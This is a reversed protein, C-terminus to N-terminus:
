ANFRKVKGIIICFVLAILSIAGGIFVSAPSFVFEINHQGHELTVAQLIEHASEIEAPKGDIEVKWGPYSIESLVLRGPGEAVINIRNATRKIKEVPRIEQGLLPDSEMWAWGRAQDNRYIYGKDVTKELIWGSNEIPFASAMYRVNLLGMADADPKTDINDSEPNGSEFAPLTVSYGDLPLNNAKRVFDSYSKLQLPDIGDALEFGNLAASHQPISYSPSYTRYDSGKEILTEVFSSGDGMANDFSRWGTLNIDFAALDMIGIIGAVLIFAKASAKKYSYCLITAAMIAWSALHWGLMSNKEPNAAIVFGQILVVLVAVAITTLRLFIAKEPNSKLLRDLTIMAIVLVAFSLFYVGRSPVRLLNFIPLTVLSTNFPISDGLAWLLSVLVSGMWFWLETHNKFFPLSIIALLICLAGPYLIWEVTAPHGPVIFGTLQVAPLSLYLSDAVTMLSRTSLGTYELLPIWVIASIGLALTVTTFLQGIFAPINKTSRGPLRSINHFVKFVLWLAGSYVAFRLDALMMLGLSSAPYVIKKWASKNELLVTSILWPLWASACVWTFHGAIIHSYGAPLLGYLIGGLIAVAKSLGMQRLLYYFGISGIFIHLAMVLNIGLPLPFFLSLWAPPYWLTSLPNAAFPYGSLISRSWLPIGQGSALSRQILLLNPFHSIMIDSINTGAPVIFNNWAALVPLCPLVLLWLSYRRM